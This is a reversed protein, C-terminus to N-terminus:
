TDGKFKGKSLKRMKSIKDQTYMNQKSLFNEDIVSNLEVKQAKTYCTEPDFTKIAKKKEIIEKDLELLIEEDKYYNIYCM